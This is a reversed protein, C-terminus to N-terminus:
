TCQHCLRHNTVVYQETTPCRVACAVTADAQRGLWHLCREALEHISRRKAANDRVGANATNGHYSWWFVTIFTFHLLIPADNWYYQGDREHTVHIAPQWSGRQGGM